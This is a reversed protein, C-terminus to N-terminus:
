LRFLSWNSQVQSLFKVLCCLTTWGIILNGWELFVRLKEESNAKQPMYLRYRGLKLRSFPTNDQEWVWCEWKEYPSASYMRECTVCMFVSLAHINHELCNEWNESYLIFITVDLYLCSQPSTASCPSIQPFASWVQLDAALLRLMRVNIRNYSCIGSGKKM